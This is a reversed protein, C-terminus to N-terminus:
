AKELEITVDDLTAYSCLLVGANAPTKTSLPTQRHGVKAPAFGVIMPASM